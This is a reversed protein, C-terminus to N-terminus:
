RLENLVVVGLWEYAGKCASLVIVLNKNTAFQMFGLLKRDLEWASGQLILYAYQM